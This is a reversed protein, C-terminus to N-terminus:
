TLPGIHSSRHLEPCYVSVTAATFELLDDSLAGREFGHEFIDLTDRGGVGADEDLSFCTRAFFQDRTGDVIKARPAAAGEDAQVAGGNRGIKEFAFKKSM